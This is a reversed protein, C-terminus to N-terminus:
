LGARRGAVRASPQGRAAASHEGCRSGILTLALTLHLISEVGQDLANVVGQEAHRSHRKFDTHRTATDAIAKRFTEKVKEIDKEPIGSAELERRTPSQQRRPSWAQGSREYEDYEGDEEDGTPPDRRAPSRSASKGRRMKPDEMLEDLKNMAVQHADPSRPLRPPSVPRTPTTKPHFRREIM